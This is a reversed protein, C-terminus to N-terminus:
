GRAAIHWFNFAIYGAYFLIAFAALLWASRKIRADSAGGRGDAGHAQGPQASPRSSTV